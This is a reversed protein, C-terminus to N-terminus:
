MGGYTAFLFMSFGILFLFTIHFLLEKVHKKLSVYNVTKQINHLIGTGIYIARAVSIMSAFFAMLIITNLEM